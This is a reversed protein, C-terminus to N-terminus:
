RSPSAFFGWAGPLWHRLWAPQDREFLLARPLEPALRRARLLCWPNFSSLLVREGAGAARILRILGPEDQGMEALFMARDEDEMEALEAETKACIAVVSGKEQVAAPWGQIM